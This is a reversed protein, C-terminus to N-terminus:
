APLPMKSEDAAMCMVEWVFSLLERACAVKVKNIHKGKHQLHHYRKRLRRMCRDAVEIVQEPQGARVAKLRKSVVCRMGVRQCSEIVTRRINHNGMKTIGFKKEKGGSSHERIDMGSYSTLNRPHPFRRADGIETVLTMATLLGIGRFCCLYSVRKHYRPTESLQKIKADYESIQDNFFIYQKLLMSINEAVVPSTDEAKDKLWKLYTKTWYEKNSSEQKYNFGLQRTLSLTHRKLDSRQRVIFGRSRILARSHEDEEDHIRIPKLEGKAYLVALRKADIRDTKVKKGPIIPILSSAIIINDIGHKNLVRHLSYGIYTSEYCTKLKYGKNQLHKLQHLLAGSTPKCRFEIFEGSRRCFAAGHFNKDDVDIAVYLLRKM